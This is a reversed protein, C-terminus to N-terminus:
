PTGPAAHAREEDARLVDAPATHRLLDEPDERPADATAASVLRARRPRVRVAVAPRQRPGVELPGVDHAHHLGLVVGEDPGAPGPESPLNPNEADGVDVHGAIRDEVVEQGAVDQAEEL